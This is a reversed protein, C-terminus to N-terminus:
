AQVVRVVLRDVGDKELLQGVRKNATATATMDGTVNDAYYVTGAITATANDNLLTFDAIEGHTMVDVSDGANKAENIIVVGMIATAAGGKVLRGTGNISVGIVKGIDAAGWAANLKARFGGARPSYKDYRSTLAM